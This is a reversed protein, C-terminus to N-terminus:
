AGPRHTFPLDFTFEREPEILYLVGSRMPFDAGTYKRSM